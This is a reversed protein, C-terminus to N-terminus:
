WGFCAHMIGLPLFAATQSPFVVLGIRMAREGEQTLDCPGSWRVYRGGKETKREKERGVPPTCM